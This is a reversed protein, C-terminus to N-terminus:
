RQKRTAEEPVPALGNNRNLFSVVKEIYGEPDTRYTCSHAAGPIVVIDDAPNGSATLIQRAAEVPIIRDRDGVVVLIPVSIEGVIDVTDYHPMGFCKEGFYLAGYALLTFGRVGTNLLRKATGIKSELASDAIIARIGDGNHEWTYLFAAMAGVSNGFLYIEEDRGNRQKIYEVAGAFDREFHARDRYRPLASFGCGRRDMTLVNFGKKALDVSLELLGMLKDARNARGGHMVIVTSRGGGPLYWGRLETNDVTSPFTIEEYTMGYDAPSGAPKGKGRAAFGFAIFFSTLIYVVIIVGIIIGIIAPIGM